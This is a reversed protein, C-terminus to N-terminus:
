FSVSACTIHPIQSMRKLSKQEETDNQGKSISFCAASNLQESLKIMFLALEVKVASKSLHCLVQTTNYQAQNYETNYVAEVECTSYKIVASSM